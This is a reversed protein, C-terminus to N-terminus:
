RRETKESLEPMCSVRALASNRELTGKPLFAIEYGLLSLMENSERMCPNWSNALRGSLAQQSSLDLREAFAAQTLGSQRMLKNLIDRYLM